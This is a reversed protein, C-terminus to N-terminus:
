GTAGTPPTTPTPDKFMMRYTEVQEQDVYRRRDGEIGFVELQGRNVLHHVNQATTDLRRAAEKFTILVRLERPM